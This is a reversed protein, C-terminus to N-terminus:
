VSPFIGAACLASILQGIAVRAQADITTGGSPAPPPTASQWSGFFRMDQGNSRDLLRMGDRPSTFLWNGGQWSALAGAHGSWAGLPSAGVLWSQGEAPSTPPTSAVGEIAAHILADILSHAENVYFEKQAQGAFLMPLGFRPSVSDFSIPDPM